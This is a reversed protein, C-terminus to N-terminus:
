NFRKNYNVNHQHKQTIKRLARNKLTEKVSSSRQKEHTVQKQGHSVSHDVRSVLVKAQGNIKGQKVRNHHQKTKQAECGRNKLGYVEHMFSGFGAAAAVQLKLFAKASNQQRHSIGGVHKQATEAGIAASDETKEAARYVGEIPVHMSQSNPELYSHTNGTRQATESYGMVYSFGERRLEGGCVAPQLRLTM